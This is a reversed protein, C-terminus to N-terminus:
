LQAGCHPCFKMNSDVSEGCEKCKTSARSPYQNKSVQMQTEDSEEYDADIYNDDDYLDSKKKKDGMYLNGINARPAKAKALEVEKRYAEEKERKTMEKKSRKSDSLWERISHDWKKPDDVLFNAHEEGRDTRYDVSLSKRTMLKFRPVATSVNTIADLYVDIMKVPASARLFGRKGKLEYIFRRDTLYLTGESIEVGEKIQKTPEKLIEHEDPEYVPM